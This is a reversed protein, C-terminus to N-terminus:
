REDTKSYYLQCVMLQVYEFYLKFLKLMYICGHIWQCLVFLSYIEGWLIEKHGNKSRKGGRRGLAVRARSLWKDTKQWKVKMKYCQIYIFDHMICGKKATKKQAVYNNQSGDVCHIYWYNIGRTISYYDMSHTYWLKNM